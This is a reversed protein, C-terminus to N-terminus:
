HRTRDAPVPRCRRMDGHATSRHHISRIVALQHMHRALLPMHEGVHIGPVSTAIPKFEGRVEAPAEPKLDWTDLHSVGGWCYLFICSKARGFGSGGATAAAVGQDRMSLFQPLSLGLMGLGTRLMQRRSLVFDRCGLRTM